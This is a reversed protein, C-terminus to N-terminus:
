RWVPNLPRDPPYMSLYQAVQPYHALHRSSGHPLDQRWIILDGARGAVPIAELERAAARPDEAPDLGRLWEGIRRHFGPVCQFAGQEAAVDNLYLIGQVGFPMPQHISSDWHLASPGSLDVGDNRLPRNLSARDVSMLLNETGWLQAFAKHIRKSGRNRALAPHHFLPAWFAHTDDYWTEPRQPDMGLFEWVALEAARADEAPVANRLVVYGHEEWFALDDASLVPDAIPTRLPYDHHPRDLCDAVARNVRAVTTADVNGGLTDRIWQEFAEFSPRERFLFQDPEVIGLGLGDQLILDLNEDHPGMTRQGGNGLMDLRGRWFRKLCRVGLAGTDRIDIEDTEQGM